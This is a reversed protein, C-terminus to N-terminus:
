VAHLADGIERKLHFNNMRRYNVLHGIISEITQLTETLPV